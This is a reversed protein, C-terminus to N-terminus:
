ASPRASGTATALREVGITRSCPPQRPPAIRSATAPPSPHFRSRLPVRVVRHDLSRGPRTPSPQPARSERSRANQDHKQTPDPPTPCATAFLDIPTNTAFCNVPASTLKKSISVALVYPCTFPKLM